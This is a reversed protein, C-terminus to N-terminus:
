TALLQRRLKEAVGLYDEAVDITKLQAAGLATVADPLTALAERFPQGSDRSIALARTVLATAAEKGITPAALTMVREAFITGNTREINSRMREPHVALATVAAALAAVAAGTGEVVAAVTPWEAQLGGAGREHEQLMGSLFAAVLGPVRTAAAVAITSAAPNRKQPMSSSGGGPEATEGIEEQMLLALDRAAKGVTGTYVGAATVLAALRDRDTHWPAAPARLQLARALAQVVDLGRDGFAALTGSAGGLQLILADDFAADLRAWGRDLASVWGAAKLGFTIPPASQLLTRGLMVTGAHQDSLQRLAASAQGHDTALIPRAQRLMLVLATDAVDQSTAGWHVYTASDRDLARVHATLARVVPISVTAGARAEEAIREADYHEARASAEIAPVAERPILGLSAEARALAVEFDLMAQLVSRDSFVRALPQTTSLSDILHHTPM